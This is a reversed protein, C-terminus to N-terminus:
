KSRKASITTSFREKLLSAYSELAQSQAAAERRFEEDRANLKSHIAFCVDHLRRAARGIDATSEMEVLATQRRMGDLAENYKRVIDDIQSRYATRNLKAAYRVQEILMVLDVGLALLDACHQKESDLRRQDVERWWHQSASRRASWQTVIVALITSSGTVVASVWDAM